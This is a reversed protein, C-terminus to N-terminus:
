ALALEPTTALEGTFARHLLSQKLADLAAIKATAQKEMEVVLASIEDLREVHENQCLLSPIAIELESLATNSLNLM